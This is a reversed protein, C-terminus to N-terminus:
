KLLILSMQQGLYFYAQLLSLGHLLSLILLFTVKNLAYVYIYLAIDWINKLEYCQTSITM